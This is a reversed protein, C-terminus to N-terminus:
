AVAEMLALQQVRTVFVRKGNETDLEVPCDNGKLELEFCLDGREMYFGEPISVETKLVNWVYFHVEELALLPLSLLIKATATEPDSNRQIDEIFLGLQVPRDPLIIKENRNINYRYGAIAWLLKKKNIPKVFEGVKNKAEKFIIEYLEESVSVLGTNFLDNKRLKITAM